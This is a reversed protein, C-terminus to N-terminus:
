PVFVLDAPESGLDLTKRTSTVPDYVNLEVREETNGVTLVNIVTDGGIQVQQVAVQDVGGPLAYDAMLPAPQEPHAVFTRIDFVQVVTSEGPTLLILYRGDAAWRLSASLAQEETLQAVSMVRGTEPAYLNLMYYRPDSLVQIYALQAGDPALSFNNIPNPTSVVMQDEGSSTDLLHMGLVYAEQYALQEAAPSFSLTGGDALWLLEAYEPPDASASSNPQIRLLRLSRMFDANMPLRVGSDTIPSTVEVYIGSRAWGILRSDDLWYANPGLAAADLLTWTAGTALDAQALADPLDPSSRKFVLQAGDPSLVFPPKISRGPLDLPTIAATEPDLVADRGDALSVLLLPKKGPRPVAWRFEVVASDTIPPAISGDRDLALLQDDHLLWGIQGSPVLPERIMPIHIDQGLDARPLEIAPMVPEVGALTPAPSPQAPDATPINSPLMAVDPAAPSPISPLLTAVTEGPLDLLTTPSGDTVSLSLLAGAGDPATVGYIASASQSFRLTDGRLWHASDAGPDTITGTRQWAAGPAPITYLYLKLPGAPDDFVQIAAATGDPSLALAGNLSSRADVIGLDYGGDKTVGSSDIFWLHNSGDLLYVGGNRGPQAARVGTPIAITLGPDFAQRGLRIVYVRNATVYYIQDTLAFVRAFGERSDLTISGQKLGTSSDVVDLWRRTLGDQTSQKQVYLSRGDASVALASPQGPASEVILDIGAAGGSWVSQSTTADYAALGARTAVFVRSGDPAIAGDIWAPGSDAQAPNEVTWLVQRTAPDIARVLTSSSTSSLLILREAGSGGATQATQTAAQGAQPAVRISGVAILAVLALMAVLASGGVIRAGWGPTSRPRARSSRGAPVPVRGLERHLRARAVREFENLDDNM